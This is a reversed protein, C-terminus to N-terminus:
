KKGYKRLVERVTNRLKKSRRYKKIILWADETNIKALYYILKRKIAIIYKNFTFKKLISKFTDMVEYSPMTSLIRLINDQEDQYLFYFDKSSVKNLFYNMEDESKLKKISRLAQLRLYDNPSDVYSFLKKRPLISFLPKLVLKTLHPVEAYKELYPLFSPDNLYEIIELAIKFNKMKVPNLLHIIIEPHRKGISQLMDRISQIVEKEDSYDLIKEVYPISRAEARLLLNLCMHTKGKDSNELICTTFLSLAEESFTSEIIDNFYEKYEILDKNNEEEKLMNVIKYILNINGEKIANDSYSKLVRVIEIARDTKKELLLLSFITHLMSNERQEETLENIVAPASTTVSGKIKQILESLNKDLNYEVNMPQTYLNDATLNTNGELVWSYDKLPRDIIYYLINDFNEEWLDDILSSEMTLDHASIVSLFRSLEKKSIDELFTISRIGNRYLYLPLSTIKNDDSYVIKDEVIFNNENIITSLPGFKGLFDVLIEYSEDLFKDAVHSKEGYLKKNKITKILANIVKKANEKQEM